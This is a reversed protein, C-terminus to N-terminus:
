GPDDTLKGDAPRSLMATMGWAEVDVARDRAAPLRTEAAVRRESRTGRLQPSRGPSTTRATPPLAARDDNQPSAVPLKGM